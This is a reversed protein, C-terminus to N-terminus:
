AKQKTAARVGSMARVVDRHTHTHTEREGGERERECVCVCVCLCVCFLIFFGDSGGILIPPRCIEERGGGGM